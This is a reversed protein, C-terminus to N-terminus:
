QTLILPPKKMEPTFKHVEKHLQSWHMTDRNFGYKLPTRNYLLEMYKSEPGYLNHQVITVHLLQLEVVPCSGYIVLQSVLGM